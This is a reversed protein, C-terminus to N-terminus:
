RPGGGFQPLPSRRRSGLGLQRLPSAHCLALALADTVDEPDPPCVLGLMQCVMRAVQGKSARGNGTLSRKVLSAQYGSVPLALAGAALLVMARAHGMLIATRPHAYKAYLEEVVVCDPGHDKMVQTIAEHITLLRRELTAKADTRVVGGELLRCHGGRSAVLGYGTVQLGPDVGMIRLTPM